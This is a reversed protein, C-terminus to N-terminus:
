VKHGCYKYQTDGCDRGIALVGRVGVGRGTALVGLLRWLEGTAIVM